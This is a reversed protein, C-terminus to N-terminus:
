GTEERRAHRFMSILNDFGLDKGDVLEVEFVDSNATAYARFVTREPTLLLFQDTSVDPPELYDAIATDTRFAMSAQEALKLLDPPSLEVEQYWRCLTQFGADSVLVELGIDKADATGALEWYEKPTGIRSEDVGLSRSIFAVLASRDIRKRLSM